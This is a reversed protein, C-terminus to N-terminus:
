PNLMVDVRTIYRRLMPQCLTEMGGDVTTMKPFRTLLLKLLEESEMLGLHSGRCQNMGHGFGLHHRASKNSIDFDNVDDFAEEDRNASFVSLSVMQGKEFRRGEFEFSEAIERTLFPVVGNYRLTERIANPLLSLDAKVKDFQTPNLFLTNLINGILHSTNEHGAMLFTACSAALEGMEFRGEDLAVAFEGILDKTDRGQGRKAEILVALYDLMEVVGKQAELMGEFTYSRHFLILSNSWDIFKRADAYPAGILEAMVMAPMPYSFAAVLDVPAHVDVASLLQEVIDTVRGRLPQMAAPKFLGVTARRLDLRRERTRGLNVRIFEQMPELASKQEGSFGAIRTGLAPVILRRDRLLTAVHQHRTVVWASFEEREFYFIPDTKRINELIEVFNASREPDFLEAHSASM